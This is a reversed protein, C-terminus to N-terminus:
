VVSKRDLKWWPPNKPENKSWSFLLAMLVGETVLYPRAQTWRTMLEPIAIMQALIAALWAEPRRLWLLPLCFIWLLLSAISFGILADEDWGLARHLAGLLWEWGPSHDVVYEPRMVVIQSYPKGAFPKAAHRRADGPPLCGYGIIKLCIFLTTLLVAIWCALPIYRQLAAPGNNMM